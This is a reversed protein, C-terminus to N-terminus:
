STELWVIGLEVKAILCMLTTDSVLTKSFKEKELMFMFSSAASPLWRSFFATDCESLGSYNLNDLTDNVYRM